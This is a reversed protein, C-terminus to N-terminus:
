NNRYLATKAIYGATMMEDLTMISTATLNVLILRSDHARRVPLRDGINYIKYGADFAKILTVFKPLNNM